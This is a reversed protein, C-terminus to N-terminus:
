VWPVVVDNLALRFPLPAAPFSSNLAVPFFPPAAGPFPGRLLLSGSSALAAWPLVLLVRDVLDEKVFPFLSGKPSFSISGDEGDVDPAALFGEAVGELGFRLHQQNIWSCLSVPGSM